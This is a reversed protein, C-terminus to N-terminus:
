GERRFPNTSPKGGETGTQAPPPGLPPRVSSSAEDYAPPLDGGHTNGGQESAYREFARGREEQLEKRAQELEMQRTKLQGKISKQRGEAAQLQEKLAMAFRQVEARGRKIEDHFAMDTFINDFFVDTMINGHNINIPPMPGVLPSAQRAHQIQMRARQIMGEAQALQHREMMDHMAGGGFMDVRSHQLAMEIHRLAGMILPVADNLLRVVHTEAEFKTRAEHYAQLKQDSQREKVDEEPFQPTPGSFIAHYLRDLEQQAADHRRAVGELERKVKNAADLQEALNAKLQNAQHEEQLVDFYEREEKEAAANFKDEKGTAKYAFRRIHSDRYKEHDKLEKARKQELQKLRKDINAVDKELDQVYRIQEQLSPKAHDTEQLVKLLQTNRSAAERIQAEFDSM